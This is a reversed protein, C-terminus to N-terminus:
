DLARLVADFNASELSTSEQWYCLKALIVSIFHTDYSKLMTEKGFIDL